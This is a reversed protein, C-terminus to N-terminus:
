PRPANAAAPRRGALWRVYWAASQIQVVYALAILLAITAGEKGFATMAIALAISLDRMVVGFVMAVADEYRFLARGLLTLLVYNLAYFVVLPGVIVLLSGPNAVISRAKLAMALFAIMVVGVASFPPFAPAFRTRWAQDGFRLRLWHQTALGAGMPVFVFLLIQRFMHPMDVEVVAGMFVKTYIPALLAGI